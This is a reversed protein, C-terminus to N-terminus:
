KIGTEQELQKIRKEQQIVYLTLEEIKELLLKNMEGLEIGNAEVEAASPINILHGKDQIHQEVEELTPLKYNKFFVYDAWGIENVLVEKTHIVGNVALKYASQPTTGIGVNGTTYFIDSTNVTSQSWLSTGPTPPDTPDTPDTDIFDSGLIEIATIQPHDGAYGASAAFEITMEGDNVQINYPGEQWPIEAGGAAVSVEFGELEIDGGEINVDFVRLGSGAAGKGVAGHYLEAFHLVVSYLGDEVPARFTMGSTSFRETNYPASLITNAASPMQGGTFYQSTTQDDSVFTNGNADTFAAGSANIRLAFDPNYQSSGPDTSLTILNNSSASLSSEKSENSDDIARVQFSYQTGPALGSVPVNSSSTSTMWEVFAGTGGTQAYIKYQNIGDNDSSPTWNLTATNEGPNSAVVNSPTSPVDNITAVGKIEIANLVPDNKEVGGIYQEIFALTLGNGGTVTISYNRTLAQNIGVECFVCLNDDENVGNIEVDFQRYDDAQNSLGTGHYAEAFVLKVTYEGDDVPFVYNFYSGKTYRMKRFIGGPNTDLTYNGHGGTLVKLDADSNITYGINNDPQYTVGEFSGLVPDGVNITKIYTSQGYSISACLFIALVALLGSLNKMIRFKFNFNIHLQAGLLSPTLKNFHSM